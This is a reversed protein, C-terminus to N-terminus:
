LQGVNTCSQGEIELYLCGMTVARRESCPWMLTPSLASSNMEIWARPCTLNSTNDQPTEDCGRLSRNKAQQSVISLKQRLKRCVLRWIHKQCFGSRRGGCIVGRVTLARCWAGTTGRVLEGRESNVVSDNVKDFSTHPSCSTVGRRIWSRSSFKELVQGLDGRSIKKQGSNQFTKFDYEVFIPGYAVTRAFPQSFDEPIEFNQGEMTVPRISHWIDNHVGHSKLLLLLPPQPQEVAALLM